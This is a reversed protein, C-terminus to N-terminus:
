TVGSSCAPVMRYVLARSHHVNFYSGGGLLAPCQLHLSTSKEESPMGMGCVFFGRPKGALGPFQYNEKGWLRESCKFPVSRVACVHASLVFM